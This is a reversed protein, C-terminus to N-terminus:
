TTCASTLKPARGWREPVAPPRCQLGWDEVRHDYPKQHQVAARLAAEMAVLPPFVNARPRADKVTQGWQGRGGPGLTDMFDTIIETFSEADVVQGTIRLVADKVDDNLGHHDVREALAKLCNSSGLAGLSAYATSQLAPRSGQAILSPIDEDDGVVGVFYVVEPSPEHRNVQKRLLDLFHPTRSRAAARLAAARISEDDDNLFDQTDKLSWQGLIRGLAEITRVRTYHSKAQLLDRLGRVHPPREKRFLLLELASARISGACNPQCLDNLMERYKANDKEPWSHRLGLWAGQRTEEDDSRLARAVRCMGESGGLATLISTAAAVTGRDQSEMRCEAEEIVGPGALTLGDLHAWAQRIERQWRTPSCDSSTSLVEAIAFFDSLAEFHQMAIATLTNRVM